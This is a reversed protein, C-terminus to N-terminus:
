YIEMHRYLLLLSLYKLLVLRTLKLNNIKYISSQLLPGQKDSISMDSMFQCIENSDTWIKLFM